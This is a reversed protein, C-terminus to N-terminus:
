IVQHARAGGEPLQTRATKLAERVAQEIARECFANKDTGSLQKLEDLQRGLNESIRLNLRVREGRYDRRRGRQGEEVAVSRFRRRLDAIRSSRSM